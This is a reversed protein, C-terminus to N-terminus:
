TRGNAATEFCVALDLLDHLLGLTTRDTAKYDDDLLGITSWYYAQTSFHVQETNHARPCCVPVGQSRVGDTVNFRDM